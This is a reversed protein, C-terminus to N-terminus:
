NQFGQLASLIAHAFSLPGVPLQFLVDHYNSATEGPLNISVEESWSEGEDDSTRFCLAYGVLTGGGTGSLAVMSSVLSAGSQLRVLCTPDAPGLLLSAVPRFPNVRRGLEGGTRPTVLM